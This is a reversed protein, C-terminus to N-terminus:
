EDQKKFIIKYMPVEIIKKPNCSCSNLATENKNCQACRLDYWKKISRIASIDLKKGLPIDLSKCINYYDEYDEQADALHKITQESDTKKCDLLAQILIREKAELEKLKYEYSYTKCLRKFMFTSKQAVFAKTIASRMSQATLIHLVLALSIALKKM